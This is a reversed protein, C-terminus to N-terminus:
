QAADKPEIQLEPLGLRDAEALAAEPVDGGVCLAIPPQEPRLVRMWWDVDGPLSSETDEILALEGARWPRALAAEDHVVSRILYVYRGLGSRVVRVRVPAPLALRIEEGTPGSLM